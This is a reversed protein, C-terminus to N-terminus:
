RRHDGVEEYFEQFEIKKLVEDVNLNLDEVSSNNLVYYDAM